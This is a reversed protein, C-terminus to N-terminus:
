AVAMALMIVAWVTISFTVALVFGRMFRAGEIEEVALAAAFDLEEYRLLMQTTM